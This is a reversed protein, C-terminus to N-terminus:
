LESKRILIVPFLTIIGACRNRFGALNWDSPLCASKFTRPILKGLKPGNLDQGM